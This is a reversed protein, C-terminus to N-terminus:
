TLAIDVQPEVVVVTMRELPEGAIGALHVTSCLSAEEDEVAGTGELLAVEVMVAVDVMAAAEVREAVEVMVAVEAMAAVVM